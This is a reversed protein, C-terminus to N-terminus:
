TLRSITQCAGKFHSEYPTGEFIEEVLCRVDNVVEVLFSDGLFWAFFKSCKQEFQLVEVFRGELNYEGNRLFKEKAYMVLIHKQLVANFHKQCKDFLEKDDGKDPRFRNMAETFKEKVSSLPAHNRSMNLAQTVYLVGRAKHQAASMEVQGEDIRQVQKALGLDSFRRFAFDALSVAKKKKGKQAVEILYLNNRARTLATYLMMTEDSVNPASLRYDCDELMVGAIKEGTSSTKTLSSSSSLWRLVNHWENSSGREEIYSFFGILAVADFELGKAERVGFIDNQIGLESFQLRLDHVKEDPALFVINGGCFVSTDALDSVNEVSLAKPQQGNILAMENTMPVSFSRALIRRVAQGIALNQAHTRHNTQLSIYQLVDKVKKKKDKVLSHIVDNVTGERMKVGLEVSQAPDASLFLSRISSHFSAFDHM